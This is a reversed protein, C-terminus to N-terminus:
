QLVHTPQVHNFEIAVQDLPQLRHEVWRAQDHMSAICQLEVEGRKRDALPLFQPNDPVQWVVNGARQQEMQRCDRRQHMVLM